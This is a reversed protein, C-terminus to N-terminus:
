ELVVHGPDGSRSLDHGEGPYRVLRIDVGHKKLLRYFLEATNAPTRYDAVSGMALAISSRDA